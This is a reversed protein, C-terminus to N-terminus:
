KVMGSSPDLWGFDKKNGYKTQQDSKMGNILNQAIVMAANGEPKQLYQLAKAYALEVIVQGYMDPIAPATTGSIDTLGMLYYVTVTGANSPKPYLGIKAGSSDIYFRDPTGTSSMDPDIEVIDFLTAPLMKRTGNFMYYILECDAGIATSITYTQTGGVMTLTASKQRFDWNYTNWIERISQNIWSGTQTALNSPVGRAQLEALITTYNWKATM